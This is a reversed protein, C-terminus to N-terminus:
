YQSETCSSSRQTCPIPDEGYIEDLGFTRLIRLGSKVQEPTADETWDSIRAESTRSQAGSRGWDTGSPREIEEALSRRLPIGLQATLVPLHQAVSSFFEEFFVIPLDPPRSRLLLYNELCWRLVFLDFPQEVQERLRLIEPALPELPGSLLGSKAIMEDAAGIGWQDYDFAEDLMHLRLVSTAVAFPHRVIGVITIDPFETKLWGALNMANISKIVRRSAFRTRNYRDVGHSRVHGTLYKSWAARLDDDTTGPEIYRGWIFHAPSPQGPRPSAPEFILRSGHGSCLLEALKTTGSRISGLLVVSRSLRHFPDVYLHIPSLRGKEWSRRVREATIMNEANVQVGEL